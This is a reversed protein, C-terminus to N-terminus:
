IHVYTLHIDRTGGDDTRTREASYVHIEEADPKAHQETLKGPHEDMRLWHWGLLCDELLLAWLAL